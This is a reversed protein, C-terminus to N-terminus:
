WSAVASCSLRRALRGRASRFCTCTGIIILAILLVFKLEAKIYFGDNINRIKWATVGLLAVIIGAYCTNSTGGIMLCSIM